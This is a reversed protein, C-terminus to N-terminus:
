CKLANETPNSKDTKWLRLQYKIVGKQEMEGAKKCLGWTTVAGPLRLVQKCIASTFSSPKRKHNSSLDKVLTFKGM